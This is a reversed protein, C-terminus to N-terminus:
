GDAVASQLSEERRERLEAIICGFLLDRCGGGLVGMGDWHVHKPQVSQDNRMNTWRKSCSSITKGQKQKKNKEQEEQRQPRDKNRVHARQQKSELM